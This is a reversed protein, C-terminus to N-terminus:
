ENQPHKGFKAYEFYEIQSITDLTKKKPIEWGNSSEFAIINKYSTSTQQTRYYQISRQISIAMTQQSNAQSTLMRRGVIQTQPSHRVRGKGAELAFM